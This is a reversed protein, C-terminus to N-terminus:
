RSMSNPVSPLKVVCRLGGLLDSKEIRFEGGYDEAMENVIALGLGSGAAAEDIRKGRLLANKRDRDNLGDGDDDITILAYGPHTEDVIVDIDVTSVAFRAANDLLNGISEQLDDRECLVLVDDAGSLNFTLQPHLKRMVKTLGQLIDMVPTRHAVGERRAGRRARELYAAIQNQISQLQGVIPEGGKMNRADNIAASLPTKLAHALNGVQHRAREMTARNATALANIEEALPAIEPPLPGDLTIQEGARMAVLAARANTLPRLGSRVAFWTAVLTCALLLLFIIAILRLLGNRASELDAVAAGVSVQYLDGNEGLFVQADLQQGAGRSTEVRWYRQFTDDFSAASEPPMPLADGAISPSNALSVGPDSAKSIAWYWGSLPLGFRPDGIEPSASIGGDQGVIASGMVNYAHALLLSRLSNNADRQLVVFLVMTVVILGFGLSVVITAFLTSTLSRSRAVM